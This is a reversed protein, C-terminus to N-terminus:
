RPVEVEDTPDFPPSDLCLISGPKTGVNRYGHPQKKEWEFVSGEPVHDPEQGQKWGLMQSSLVLEAERMVHHEHNPIERGPLLNLRYLGLLRTEAIIDVTGWPNTEHTYDLEEARAQLEVSPTAQGPLVGFKTLKISAGTPRPRGESPGPPALLYRLLVQAAAELLYFRGQQLVFSLDRAMAAYDWTDDLRDSLSAANTDLDLSLDVRLTQPHLRERALCGILCDVRLDTVHITAKM